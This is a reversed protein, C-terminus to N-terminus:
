FNDSNASFKTLQTFHTLYDYNVFFFIKFFKGGVCFPKKRKLPSIQLQIERFNLLSRLFKVCFITIFFYGASRGFDVPLQIKKVSLLRIKSIVSNCFTRLLFAFMKLYFEFRFHLWSFRFHATKQESFGYNVLFVLKDNLSRKIKSLSDFNFRFHAKDFRFYTKKVIPSCFDRHFVQLSSFFYPFNIM